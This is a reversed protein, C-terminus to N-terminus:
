CFDHVLCRRLSLWLFGMLPCEEIYVLMIRSFYSMMAWSAEEFVCRLM